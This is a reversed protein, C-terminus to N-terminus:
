EIGKLVYHKIMKEKIKEINVIIENSLSMRKELM